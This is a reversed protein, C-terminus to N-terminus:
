AITRREEPPLTVTRSSGAELVTIRPRSGDVTIVRPQCASCAFIRERESEIVATRDEGEVCFIRETSPEDTLDRQIADFEVDSGTFIFQGVDAVIKRAVRLAATAGTLAFTGAEVAWVYTRRSGAAAGTLLYEGTEALLTFGKRLAANEGTLAFSGAGAAIKRVARLTAAMGTLAFTGATAALKYGRRLTVASGTLTFEGPAQAPAIVFHMGPTTGAGSASFEGTTDSSLSLQIFSASWIGLSGDNGDTTTADVRETQAALIINDWGFGGFGDANGKAYMAVVLTRRTSPTLAPLNGSQNTASDGFPNSTDANRVAIMAGLAHDGPDTVTAETDTGDTFKYFVTLRSAGFFTNDGIVPSDPHETWGSPASVAEDATEVALILLDGSSISAPAPVVVDGIGDAATGAAVFTPLTGALLRREAKLAAASGTLAFSGAEAAVVLPERLEILFAGEFNNTDAWTASQAASGADYVCQIVRGGLGGINSNFEQIETYGAPATPSGAGNTFYWGLVTSDANPASTLSPAPFDTSLATDFGINGYFSAAGTVGILSCLVCEVGGTTAPTVTVTMSNGNSIARYLRLRHRVGAGPDFTDEWLQTWTLGESDTITGAAPVAGGDQWNVFAFIYGGSTFSFSASTASADGLAASAASALATPTGLAM